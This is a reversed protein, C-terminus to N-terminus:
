DHKGDIFGEKNIDRAGEDIYGAKEIAGHNGDM